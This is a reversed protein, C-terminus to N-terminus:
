LECLSAVSGYYAMVRGASPCTEVGRAEPQGGLRDVVGLVSAWWDGEYRRGVVQFDNGIGLGEAVRGFAMERSLVEDVLGLNVAEDEGYVYAGIEGTIAQPELERRKAVYAVFRSYAGDAGSQAIELEKETPQRFPNGFDKGEGATITVFDVGEETVVNPGLVGLGLESVENYVPFAAGIVGISGVLSGVDAYVRDGAAAVWYGGSAVVGNGFVVIPKGAVQRYYEIGEAIANSGTVTGGPSSVEVVVAAVTEDSAAEMLLKKTEYGYTVGAAVLEDFPNARGQRRDLIPGFVKVSLIQNESEGDGWEYVLESAAAGDVEGGVSLLAAVLGFGFLFPWMVAVFVLLFLVSGLWKKM